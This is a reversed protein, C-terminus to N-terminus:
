KNCSPVRNYDTDEKCGQRPEGVLWGSGGWQLGASLHPRCPAGWVRLVFAM